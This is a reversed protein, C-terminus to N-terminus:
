KRKKNYHGFKYKFIDTEIEGMLLRYFECLLYKGSVNIRGDAELRRVSVFLKIEKLVRYDGLKQARKIYEHDEALKLKENFGGIKQHLSKKILICSGPAHPYIKEMAKIYANVVGHLIVDIVKDSLPILACTAADLQKNEFAAIFKKLFGSPLVVDSDLFLLYDGRAALAGSNRGVSPMGGGAVRCGYQRAIETTGDTSGADAVIVELDAFDQNRISALLVPLLEAENLTPIIISLKM